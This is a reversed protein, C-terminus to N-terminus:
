NFWFSVSFSNTLSEVYHWWGLPIYLCDGAHLITEQYKASKLLPFREEMECTQAMSEESQNITASIYGVDISSTNAMPVGREDVDMPYMKDTEEPPYLRVYKHGVVQCLINHYADTHLPTRTGKPGLWANMQPETVTQTKALGFTKAAAGKPDPPSAWCYDPIRIDDKLKPIQDFLDHQALYGVEKPRQPALFRGIFESFPMVKQTWSPDTYSAGIEVPVNRRGGLTRELLYGVNPWSTRAPWDEFAKSIVIPGGFSDLHRQFTEMSIPARCQAISKGTDTKLRDTHHVYLTTQPPVESESELFRELQELIWEILQRRGPAGATFLAKDLYEVARAFHRECSDENADTGDLAAIGLLEQAVKRLCADEYLRRWQIPIADYPWTHLKQIALQLVDSPRTAIVSSTGSGCLLIPDEPVQRDLEDTISETLASLSSRRAQAWNVKLPRASSDGSCGKEADDFTVVDDPSGDGPFSNQKYAPNIASPMTMPSPM